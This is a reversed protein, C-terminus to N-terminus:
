AEYNASRFKIDGTAWLIEVSWDDGVKVISGVLREQDLILRHDGDGTVRWMMTDTGM